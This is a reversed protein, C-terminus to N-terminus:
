RRWGGGGLIGSRKGGEGAALVDALLRVSRSRESVGCLFFKDDEPIVARVPLRLASSIEEPTLVEKKRMMNAKVLNIVLGVEKFRYSQLIGSVRDADRMASLHPTTVLLAEEACAAARHFGEDIGAPSDILMFDFQPALSDLVLRVSQASVYKECIKNSSLTFLTSYRPHRVLAQRPRCRGEVADVIDYVALSEVGLVVDANNLGFDLDCVAVRLGRRALHVGLNCCLTTKGVGGKGSVFVIKRAM